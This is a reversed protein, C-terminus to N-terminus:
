KMWWLPWTIPRSRRPSCTNSPPWAGSELASSTSSPRTRRLSSVSSIWVTRPWPQRSAAGHAPLRRQSPAQQQGTADAQQQDRQQGARQQALQELAARAVAEVVFQLLVHQRQDRLHFNSGVALRLQALVSHRASGAPTRRNRSASRRHRHGRAAATASATPHFGALWSWLHPWGCDPRAAAAIAARVRAAPAGAARWRVTRPPPQWRDCHAPHPHQRTGCACRWRWQAYQNCRPQRHQGALHVEAQARQMAETCLQFPYTAAIRLADVRLPQARFDCRQTFFEVRQQVVLLAHDRTRAGTCLIQRVRQLSWKAYQGGLGVAVTRAPTGGHALLTRAHLGTDVTVAAPSAASWRWRLSTAVTACASHRNIARTCPSRPMANVASPMSGISCNAPALASRSSISPLRNSLAPRHARCCTLTPASMWSPRSRM